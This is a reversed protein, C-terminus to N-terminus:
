VSSCSQHVSGFMDTLMEQTRRNSHPFRNIYVTLHETMMEQTRICRPVYSIYVTLHEIMMEQTRNCRPVYSIYVALCTLWLKLYIANIFLKLIYTWSRTLLDVLRLSWVLPWLLPCKRLQDGLEAHRRWLSVVLPLHTLQTQSGPIERVDCQIIKIYSPILCMSIGSSSVM